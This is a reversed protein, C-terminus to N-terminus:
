KQANISGYSKMTEKIRIKSENVAGDWSVYFILLLLIIMSGIFYGGISCGWIIYLSIDTYQSYRFYFLLVCAFPFAFCFDVPAQIYGSIRQYGLGRYLSCLFNYFSWMVTRGMLFYILDEVLQVVIEDRSFIYPLENRFIAYVCVVMVVWIFYIIGGVWMTQKAMKTSSAGIYKGTRLTVARGIGAGALNLIKNLSSAIVTVSIAVSPDYVLGSLVTMLEAIIWRLSASFCGPFSLTFYEWLGHKDFILKFPLPKFLFGYGRYVIVFASLIFSIITCIDIVYATGLYGLEFTYILLYNLPVAFTVSILVAILLETNYNLSQAVRQCITLSVMSWLYPILARCYNTIIEEPVYLCTNPLMLCMLKGGFFQLVTLPAMITYNVVIARQFYIALLRPQQAGLAQPVLTYLGTTMGWSIGVAFMSSFSKALGCGSLLISPNPLHGLFMIAIYNPAMEFSISVGIRIAINIMIKAEEYMSSAFVFSKSRNTKSLLIIDEENKSVGNTRM